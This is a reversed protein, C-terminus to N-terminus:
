MKYVIFNQFLVDGYFQVLYIIHFFLIRRILCCYHNILSMYIIEAKHEQCCHLQSAIFCQIIISKKGSSYNLLPFCLLFYSQRACIISCIRKFINIVFKQYDTKQCNYTIAINSSVVPIAFITNSSSQSSSFSISFRFFRSCFFM